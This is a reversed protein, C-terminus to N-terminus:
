IPFGHYQNNIPLIELIMKILNKFTQKLFFYYRLHKFFLATKVSIWKTVDNPKPIKNLTPKIKYTDGHFM